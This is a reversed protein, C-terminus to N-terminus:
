SLNRLNKFIQVLLLRSLTGTGSLSHESRQKNHENDLSSVYDPFTFHSERNIAHVQASQSQTSLVIIQHVLAASEKNQEQIDVQRANYVSNYKFNVYVSNDSIYYQCLFLLHCQWNSLFNSKTLYRLINLTLQYSKTYCIFSQFATM